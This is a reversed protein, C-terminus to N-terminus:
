LIKCAQDFSLRPARPHLAAPNGHGLACLFNSKIATGSFFEKDVGARDFADGQVRAFIADALEGRRARLRAVVVARADEVPGVAKRM